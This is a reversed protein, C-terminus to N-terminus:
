AHCFDAVARERPTRRGAAEPQTALLEGQTRLFKVGLRVEDADPQRCWVRRYADRVLDEDRDGHKAVLEGALTRAQELPFDGNFLLLAQPSTTTNVRRSCTNHLDPQDFAAFLPYRMNRKVLVYVSRRNRDEPKEDAKWAYKSIGEPLAPRASPGYMRLSLQGSLALLDDRIAEGELRQRRAHWLLHNDPDVKHARAQAADTLDVTSDQCYASSLVMLRHMHKLSWGHEVF